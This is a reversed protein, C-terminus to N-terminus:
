PMNETCVRAFMAAQVVQHYLFFCEIYRAWICYSLLCLMHLPSFRTWVIADSFIFRAEKWLEQHTHTHSHTRTHTHYRSIDLTCQIKTRYGRGHTNSLAQGIFMVYHAMVLWISSRNQCRITHKSYTLMGLDTLMLCIGSRNHRMIAHNWAIFMGFDPWFFWVPVPGIRARQPM